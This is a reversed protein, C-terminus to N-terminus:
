VYCPYCKCGDSCQGGCFMMDPTPCQVPCPCTTMDPGVAADVPAVAADHITTVTADGLEWPQTKCGAALASGCLVIAHFLRSPM